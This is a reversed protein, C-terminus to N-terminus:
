QDEEEVVREVVRYTTDDDRFHAGTLYPAREDLTRRRTLQYWERVIRRLTASIGADSLDAETVITWDRPYMSVNKAEVLNQSM